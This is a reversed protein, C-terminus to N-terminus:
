NNVEDKPATSNNVGRSYVDEDGGGGGGSENSDLELLWIKKHVQGLQRKISKSNPQM